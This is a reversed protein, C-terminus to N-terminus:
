IVQIKPMIWQDPLLQLQVAKMIVPEKGSRHKKLYAFAEENDSLCVTFTYYNFLDQVYFALGSEGKKIQVAAQLLYNDHFPYGSVILGKEGSGNLSYFNPSREMELPRNKLGPSSKQEIAADLATHINWKGKLIEWSDLQNEDKDAILFDDHFYLPETKQYRIAKTNVDLAQNQFWLSAATFPPRIRYIEKNDLYITWSHQHLKVNCELEAMPKDPLPNIPKVALVPNAPAREGQVRIGDTNKGLQIFCQNKKGKDAFMLLHGTEPKWNIKFRFEGYKGATSGVETFGFYNEPTADAFVNGASLLLFLCVVTFVMKM